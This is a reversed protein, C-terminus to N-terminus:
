FVPPLSFLAEITNALPKFNPTGIIMSPVYNFLEAPNTTLNNVDADIPGM